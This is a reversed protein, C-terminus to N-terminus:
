GAAVFCPTHPQGPILEKVPSFLDWRAAESQSPSVRICAMMSGDSLWPGIGRGGPATTVLSGDQTVVFGDVAVTTTSIGYSLYTGGRSLRFGFAEPPSVWEGLAAGDPTWYTVVTSEGDPTPYQVAIVSGDSSAGVPLLQPEFGQDNAPLQPLTFLVTGSVLDAVQWRTGSSQVILPGNDTFILQSSFQQFSLPHSTVIAGSRDLEWVTARNPMQSDVVDIRQCNGNVYVLPDTLMLVTSIGILAGTSLDFIGLGGATNRVGLNCRPEVGERSDYIRVPALSVISTDGSLYGTVDAIVDVGTNSSLCLTGTAGLKVIALNAVDVGPSFNLNSVLPASGGCPYASVFGSDVADTATLNVIVAAASGPIGPIGAVQLTRGGPTLKGIPGGIGVRTDLLRAPSVLPVVDTAAVVYGSLDVVVDTAAMSFLCVRGASGVRAVVFNPVIAGPTYNLTSTSPIPEGCPFATLFGPGGPQVATVNFLVMTAEPPVDALGTVQVEAVEGATMRRPIGKGERSDVIRAPQPLTVVSSGAPIYGALDVVVDVVAITDICVSGDPSLQSVVFNPVTQDQVYNLNSALPRNGCPYVTLYGPGAAGTVTVNMAVGVADLPVGDFGAIPIELTLVPPLAGGSPFAAATGGIAVSLIACLALWWCLKRVASEEWM